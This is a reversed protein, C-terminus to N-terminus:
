NVRLHSDADAVESMLPPTLCLTPSAIVDVADLRPAASRALARLRELRALYSGFTRPSEAPPSLRRRVRRQLAPRDISGDVWPTPVGPSLTLPSKQVIYFLSSRTGNGAIKATEAAYAGSSTKTLLGSIRAIGVGLPRIM